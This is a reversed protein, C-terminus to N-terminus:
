HQILKVAQNAVENPQIERMCGNPYTTNTCMGHLHTLSECPVCPLHRAIMQTHPRDTWYVSWEPPSPGQVVLTTTGMAAAVNMPGSNNGIFLGARSCLAAFEYISLGSLAQKAAIADDKRETVFIALAGTRRELQEAVEKFNALGWEKYPLKAYPHIVVVPQDPSRQLAALTDDIRALEQQNFRIPTRAATLEPEGAIHRVLDFNLDVVNRGPGFTLTDTLLFSARAIGSSFGVRKKVRLFRSLLYSFSPEDHAHLAVDFHGRIDWSAQKIATLLASPGRTKAFDIARVAIGDVSRRFISETSHSCVITIPADPMAKRLGQLTPLFTIADGLYNIKTVLIRM